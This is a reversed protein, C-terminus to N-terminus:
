FMRADNRMIRFWFPLIVTLILAFLTLFLTILGRQLRALFSGILADHNEQALVYIGSDRKDIKIPVASAIWRGAYASDLQGIPDRYDPNPAVITELPVRFRPDFVDHRLVDGGHDLFKRYYPHQLIVGKAGKRMDLIVFKMQNTQSSEIEVIMGFELMKAIVGLPKGQSDIVPASVTIVPNGMIRSLFVTSVYPAKLIPPDYSRGALTEEWDTPGGHFYSRWAYNNGVSDLVPARAIQIGNASLASWSFVFTDTDADAQYREEMLNQLARVPKSDILKDRDAFHRAIEPVGEGAKPDAMRDMLGISAHDDYLRGMVVRLEDDAGITEFAAVTEPANAAARLSELEKVLADSVRGAALRAAAQNTALARQTLGVDVFRLAQSLGTIGFGITMVFTTLFTAVLATPVPNRRIWRQARERRTLRIGPGPPRDELYRAIENRLHAASAFRDDPDKQLCKACIQVLHEPINEQFRRPDPPPNERIQRLIAEPRGRFPREGALLEYLVVGLAYVDTRADASHSDGRAQEPAMYPITGVVSPRTDLAPDDAMLALGFDVLCPRDTGAHMLINEPKIDRHVVGQGHAYDLADALQRVIACARRPSLSGAHAKMWERLSQGEVLESVIHLTGGSEGVDFVRVIHDHRLRGVVLDKQFQRFEDDALHNRLIKVAVHRDVATDHAKWVTGFQGKGLREILRYRGVALTDGQSHRPDSRAFAKRVPAPKSESMERSGSAVYTKTLALSDTALEDFTDYSGALNNRIDRWIRFKASIEPELRANEALFAAAASEDWTPHTRFFAEILRECLEDRSPETEM